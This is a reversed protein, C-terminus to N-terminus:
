CLLRDASVDPDGKGPTEDDEDDRVDEGHDNVAAPDGLPPSLGIARMRLATVSISLSPIGHAFVSVVRVSLHVRDDAGPVAPRRWDAEANEEDQKGDCE